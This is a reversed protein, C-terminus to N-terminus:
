KEFPHENEFDPLYNDSSELEQVWGRFIGSEDLEKVVTEYEHQTLKRNLDPYNDLNRVPHYQAMLSVSINLSLEDAIYRIVNLSNDIQGPLVLHRIILGSEAIGDDNKIITSGKQRYMEKIASSAVEFYDSVDSFKKALKNDSYKFDPLYVNIYNELMKITEVKDYSNTNYVTIPYYGKARLNEIISIVHHVYHSPSVFGLSNIGNIEFIDIIANTVEELSFVQSIVDGRNCSIQINQCYICQLNCRSFFVNCIGREGSIVPEEGKHVTISSINYEANSGCYGTKGSLRNANCNRPCINCSELIEFSPKM